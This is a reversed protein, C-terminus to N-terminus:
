PPTIKGLVRPGAAGTASPVNAPKRRLTEWALFGFAMAEKADASIGAEDSLIVPMQAHEEIRGLLYDNHAGGGSVIIEWAEDRDRFAAIAQGATQATLETLTAILDGPAIGPARERAASVFHEGFEERGCSKPPPCAFHEHQLAWELLDADM